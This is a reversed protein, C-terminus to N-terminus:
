HIRYMEIGRGDIKTANTSSWEQKLKCTNVFTFITIVDENKETDLTKRTWILSGVHLFRCSVAVGEDGNSLFSSFFVIYFYFVFLCKKPYIIASWNFNVARPCSSSHLRWPARTVLNKFSTVNREIRQTNHQQTCTHTDSNSVKIKRIFIISLAKQIWKKMKVYPTRAANCKWDSQMGM